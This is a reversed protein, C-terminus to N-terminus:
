SISSPMGGGLVFITEWNRFQGIRPVGQQILRPLVTGFWTFAEQDDPLDEPKVVDKPIPARLAGVMCCARTFTFGSTVYDAVGTLTSLLVATGSEGNKAM